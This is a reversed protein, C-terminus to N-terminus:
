RDGSRLSRACTESAARGGGPRDGRASRDRGRLAFCRRLALARPRGARPSLTGRVRSRPHSNSSGRSASRGRYPCGRCRREPPFSSIIPATRVACPQSSFAPRRLCRPHCPGRATARRQFAFRRPSCGQWAAATSWSLSLASSCRPALSTTHAGAVTTPIALRTHDLEAQGRRM